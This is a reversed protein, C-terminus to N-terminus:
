SGCSGCGCSGCGCSGCSSCSACTACSCCSTCSACSTCNSCSSCNTFPPAVPSQAGRALSIVRLDSFESEVAPSIAAFDLPVPVANGHIPILRVYPFVASIELSLDRCFVGIGPVSALRFLRGLSAGPWLERTTENERTGPLTWKSGLRGFVGVTSMEAVKRVSHTQWVLVFM